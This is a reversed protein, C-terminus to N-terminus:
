HIHCYTIAQFHTHDGRFHAHDKFNRARKAHMLKTGTERRMFKAVIGTVKQVVSSKPVHFSSKGICYLHGDEIMLLPCFILTFFKNGILAPPLTPLLKDQYFNGHM